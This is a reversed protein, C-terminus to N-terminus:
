NKDVDITSLKTDKVNRLISTIAESLCNSYNNEETSTLASAIKKIGLKNFVSSPKKQLLDKWQQLLFSLTSLIKKFESQRM